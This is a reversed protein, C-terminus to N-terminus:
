AWINAPSGWSYTIGAPFSFPGWLLMYCSCYALGRWLALFYMRGSPFDPCHMKTDEMAWKTVCPDEEQCLISSWSEWTEPPGTMRGPSLLSLNTPCVIVRTAAAPSMAILWEDRQQQEEEEEEKLYKILKNSLYLALSLLPSDWLSLSFSNWASETSLASNSAPSLGLVRLDCGSSFCLTLQEALQM